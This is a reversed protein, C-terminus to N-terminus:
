VVDNLRLDVFIQESGRAVALHLTTGVPAHALQWWQQTDVASALTGNVATIRDGNELGAADAPGDPLIGSVTFGTADNKDASMGTRDYAQPTQASSLSGFGMLHRAYDFTVATFNRLVDIGIVGAYKTSALTGGTDTSLQIVPAAISGTGILLLKARALQAYTEGGLGQGTAGAGTTRYASALHHSAVFPTTLAVAFSSGTDILFSGPLGDLQAALMPTTDSFSIPLQAVGSGPAYSASPAFAIHRKEFDITTAYKELLEYGLDVEVPQPGGNTLEYPLPVILFSQDRLIARGIAVERVRTQSVGVRGTGMGGVNSKPNGVLGLRRALGPTIVNRGGTDFIAATKVGNIRVDVIINDAVLAFPVIVTADGSPAASVPASTCFTVLTLLVILGRLRSKRNTKL